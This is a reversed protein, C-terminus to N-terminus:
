GSERDGLDLAGFPGDILDVLSAANQAALNFQQYLVAGVVGAGAHLLRVLQDIAVVDVHDHTVHVRADGVRDHTHRRFFADQVDHRATM